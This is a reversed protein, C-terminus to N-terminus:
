NILEIIFYNSHGTHYCHREFITRIIKPLNKSLEYREFCFVRTERKDSYLLKNDANDLNKYTFCHLSFCVEFYYSKEPKEQTAEQKLEMEFPHLHTLEYEKNEFIFSNWKIM